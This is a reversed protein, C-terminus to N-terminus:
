LPNTLLGRLHSSMAHTPRLSSGRVVCRRRKNDMLRVEKLYGDAAVPPVAETYNPDLDINPSSIDDGNSVEFVVMGSVPPVELRAM